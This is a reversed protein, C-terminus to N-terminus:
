SGPEFCEAEPQQLKRKQRLSQGRLWMHSHLDKDTYICVCIYIYICTYICIYVCMCVPLCASM